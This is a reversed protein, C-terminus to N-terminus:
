RFAVAIAAPEYISAKGYVLSFAFESGLNNVSAGFQVQGNGTPDTPMTYDQNGSFWTSTSGNQGLAWAGAIGIAGAQASLNVVPNKADNSGGAAIPVVSNLGYAAYVGLGEASDVSECYVTDIDGFSGQPVAAVWISMISTYTKANIQQAVRTAPVGGITLSQLPCTGVDRFGDVVIIVRNDAPVGFNVNQYQRGASVGGSEATQTFSGLFSVSIPPQPCVQAYIKCSAFFAFLIFPIIRKM